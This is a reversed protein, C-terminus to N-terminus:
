LSSKAEKWVRLFSSAFDQPRNATWEDLHKTTFWDGTEIEEPHLIFPGESVTHYVWVFEWGTEQCAKIYCLRRPNQPSTLGIEERLERISCSDYDEGTDLHGAASTDWLGPSSDKSMSRKQLFVDGNSNTVIIHVARHKLGLRHVERRPKQDIVEDLDNVVDFIEEAM